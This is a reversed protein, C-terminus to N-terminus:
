QQLTQNTTKLLTTFNAAQAYSLTPTAQPTTTLPLISLAKPLSTAESSKPLIPLATSLVTTTRPPYTGKIYADFHKNAVVSIKKCLATLPKRLRAPLKQVDESQLYQDWFTAIPGYIQQGETARTAAARVTNELAISFSHPPGTHDPPPSPM